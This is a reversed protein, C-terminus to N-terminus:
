TAFQDKIYQEIEDQGISSMAQEKENLPLGKAKKIMTEHRRCAMVIFDVRVQEFLYRRSGPMKKKGRQLLNLAPYYTNLLCFHWANMGFSGPFLERVAPYGKEDCANFVTEVIKLKELPELFELTHTDSKKVSNGRENIGCDKAYPAETQPCYKSGPAILLGSGNDARQGRRAAGSEYGSRILRVLM